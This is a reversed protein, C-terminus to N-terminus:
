ISVRNNEQISYMLLASKFLSSQFTFPMTLDEELRLHKFACTYLLFVEGCVVHSSADVQPFTLMFTSDDIIAPLKPTMSHNMVNTYVAM